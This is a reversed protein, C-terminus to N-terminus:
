RRALRGAAHDAGGARQGRRRAKATTSIAIGNNALAGTFAAGTFQSGQDTNFIDPKGDRALADEWTEMCFAADMTISPRWSLVRRSFWDLVV